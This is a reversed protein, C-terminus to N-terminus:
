PEVEMLRLMNATRSVSLDRLITSGFLAVASKQCKRHSLYNSPRLMNLDDYVDELNHKLEAIRRQMEPTVLKPANSM